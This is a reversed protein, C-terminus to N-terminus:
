PTVRLNDSLWELWRMVGELRRKATSASLGLRTALNEAWTEAGLTEVRLGSALWAECVFRLDPLALLTQFLAEARAGRTKVSALALGAENAAYGVPNDTNKRVLGLYMAANAYYEAQRMDIGFLTAIDERTRPAQALLLVLDILKDLDNAQPYPVGAPPVRLKNATEALAGGLSVKPPPAADLAYVKPRLAEVEGFTESMRLETLSILGNAYTFFVPAIRKHTRRRWALYPYWLQRLHAHDRAGRKAEILLLTERGEYGADIEIQVQDVTQRHQLHPMHLDFRGSYLRGRLTLHLDADGTFDAFIGALYAFDLAQSESLNAGSYTDLLDLQMRSAFPRAPPAKTTFRHFMKQDEDRFILYHGNRVPLLSAGLDAMIKPREDLTDWKVLLRPERQGSAKLTDASIEMWGRSKLADAVGSAAVIRQWAVDNASDGRAM